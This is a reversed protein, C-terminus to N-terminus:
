SRDTSEAVERLLYVLPEKPHRLATARYPPHDLPPDHMSCWALGQRRRHLDRGRGYGGGRRRLEYALTALIRAGSAGLPHGIAIAVATSPQRARPRAADV